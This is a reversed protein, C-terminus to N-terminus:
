YYCTTGSLRGGKPCTYDCAYGYSVCDSGYNYCTYLNGSWHYMCGNDRRSSSPVKYSYCPNNSWNCCEGFCEYSESKLCRNGCNVASAPYNHQARFTGEVELDSRNKATCTVDYSGSKKSKEPNCTLTGGLPGFTATVNDKFDYDETGKSLPNQIVTLTPPTKDLLVNNNPKAPCNVTHGVNDVITYAKIPSTLDKELDTTYTKSGHKEQRAGWDGNVTKCGSGQEEDKCGWYITRDKSTWETPVNDDCSPNQNDIYINVDHDECITKNGAVDTIEYLEITHTKESKGKKDFTYSGYKQEINEFPGEKEVCGSAGEGEDRCGWTVTRSGTKWTTSEGHYTCLPPTNDVKFEGSQVYNGDEEENPNTWNEGYIDKLGDVRIWLYYSGNDQKKSNTIIEESEVEITEGSLILEEQKNPVQFNVRSWEADDSPRNDKGKVWTSYIVIDGHIGTFSNLLVKVKKRRAYTSSKTFKIEISAGERGKCMNTNMQHYEGEPYSYTVASSSKERCELSYSYAYQNKLKVVRVFSNEHHCTADSVSVEKLLKKEVLQEYTIYACGTDHHGFLDEDYSDVYLRASTMMGEAYTEYKKKNNEEQIHRIIPFSLGMIIGLVVVTVLLEVLTFGKNKM